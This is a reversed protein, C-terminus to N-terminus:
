ITRMGIQDYGRSKWFKVAAYIAAAQSNLVNRSIPHDFQDYALWGKGWKEITICQSIDWGNGIYVYYM